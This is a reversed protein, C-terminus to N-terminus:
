YNKIFAIQNAELTFNNPSLNTESIYHDKDILCVTMNDPTDLTIERSEESFNVIMTAKKEGDTAALAYLGQSRDTINCEVQNKLAYLQVRKCNLSCTRGLPAFHIKRKKPSGLVKLGRETIQYM